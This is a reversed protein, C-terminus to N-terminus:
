LISWDVPPINMGVLADNARSFCRSGIFPSNTKTAGLPSPHSTEILVHKSLDVGQGKKAAAKGWFLFVIGRSSADNVKQVVADTFKEWGQNAHSNADGQRVTLVTNLLLIGQKAWHELNGHTPQDIFVDTMAERVINQLSPPIKVGRQVSFALGHGQGPGHYPDQGIIVVKVTELPCLNLASFLDEQPPYIIKGSAREEQVFLALNRFWESDVTDALASKWSPDSLGSMLTTVADVPEAANIGVKKHKAPAITLTEMPISATPLTRESRPMFLQQSTYWISRKHPGEEKIIPNGKTCIRRGYCQLEFEFSGREGQVNRFTGGDPRTLGQAQYSEQSILRLEQFLRRM